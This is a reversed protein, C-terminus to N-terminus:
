DDPFRITRLFVLFAERERAILENPGTLRFFWSDGGQKFIATVTGQSPGDFEVITAERGHITETRTYDALGDEGVPALNLQGRWRNVNALLGGVDGPFSTISIDGTGGPGSVSYSGRRMASAAGAEWHDAAEWAPGESAMNVTGEPLAQGIMGESVPREAGAPAETTGPIEGAMPTEGVAGGAMPTEGVAGGAMPAGVPQRPAPEEEKPVDYVVPESSGGCGAFFGLGALVAAATLLRTKM